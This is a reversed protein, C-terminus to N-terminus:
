TEQGTLAVGPFANNPFANNLVTGEPFAGPEVELPPQQASAPGGMAFVALFGVVLWTSGAAAVRM